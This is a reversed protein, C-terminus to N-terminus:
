DANITQNGMDSPTEPREFQLNPLKSTEGIPNSDTIQDGEQESKSLIHVPSVNWLEEMLVQLLITVYEGPQGFQNVFDHLTIAGLEAKEQETM